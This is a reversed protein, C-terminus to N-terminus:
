RQKIQLGSSKDYNMKPDSGFKIKNKEKRWFFLVLFFVARHWKLRCQAAEKEGAFASVPSFFIKSIKKGGV